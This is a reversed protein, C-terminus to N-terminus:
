EMGLVNKLTDQNDVYGGHNEDITVHNVDGKIANHLM